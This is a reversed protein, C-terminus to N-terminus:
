ERSKALDHQAQATPGGLLPKEMSSVKTEGKTIDHLVEANIPEGTHKQAQATPGGRVPQDRGTIESEAKRINSITDGHLVGDTTSSTERHPGTRSGQKAKTLISQAAATPGGKVREGVVNKEGATISSITDSNLPEGAHSQAQATLGSKAPSVSGTLEKEKQTITSITESDLKPQNTSAM